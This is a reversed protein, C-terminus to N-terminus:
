RIRLSRKAFLILPISSAFVAFPIFLIGLGDEVKATIQLIRILLFLMISLFSCKLYRIMRTAATYLYLKNKETIDVPYNFLTPFFNFITFGLYLFSAISPLLFITQKGGFGDAQGTYNFHTPITQPLQSYSVVSFMWLFFVIIIAVLEIVIDVATVPFQIKWKM